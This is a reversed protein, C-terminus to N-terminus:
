SYKVYIHTLGLSFAINFLLNGAVNITRDMQDTVVHKM